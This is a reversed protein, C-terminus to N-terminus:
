FDESLKQFLVGLAEVNYSRTPPNGNLLSVLRNIANKTFVRTNNWDNLKNECKNFFVTLAQYKKKFFFNDVPSIKELLNILSSQESKCQKKYSIIDNTEIKLDYYVKLSINVKAKRKDFM